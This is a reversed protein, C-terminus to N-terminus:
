LLSRTRLCSCRGITGKDWRWAIEVVSCGNENSTAYRWTVKSFKESNKNRSTIRLFIVIRSWPLRYIGLFAGIVGWVGNLLSLKARCNINWARKCVALFWRHNQNWSCSISPTKGKISVKDRQKSSLAESIWHPKVNRFIQEIIYPKVCYTTWTMVIKLLDLGTVILLIYCVCYVIDCGDGRVGVDRDNSPRLAIDVGLPCQFVPRWSTLNSWIKNGNRWIKMTCYSGIERAWPYRWSAACRGNYLM